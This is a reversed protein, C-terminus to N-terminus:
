SCGQIPAQSRYLATLDAQPFFCLKKEKLWCETLCLVLEKEVHKETYYKYVATENGQKGYVSYHSGGSKLYFIPSPTLIWQLCM